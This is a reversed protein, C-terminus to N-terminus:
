EIFFGNKLSHSKHKSLVQLKVVLQVPVTLLVIAISVLAIQTIVNETKQHRFM